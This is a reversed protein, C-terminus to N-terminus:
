KGHDLPLVAIWDRLGGDRCIADDETRTDVPTTWFEARIRAIPWAIIHELPLTKKPPKGQVALGRDEARMETSLRMQRRM